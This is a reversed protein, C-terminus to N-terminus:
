LLDTVSFNRMPNPPQWEMKTDEDGKGDDKKALAAQMAKVFAGVDPCVFVFLKTITVLWLQFFFM